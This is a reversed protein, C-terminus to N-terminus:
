RQEGMEGEGMNAHRDRNCGLPAAADNVHLCRLRELGVKADVEDLM